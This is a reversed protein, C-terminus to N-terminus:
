SYIMLIGLPNPENAIQSPFCDVFDTLSNEAASAAMQAIDGQLQDRLGQSKVQSLINKGQQRIVSPNNYEVTLPIKPIGNADNMDVDPLRINM